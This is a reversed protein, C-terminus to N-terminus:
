CVMSFLKQNSPHSILAINIAMDGVETYESIIKKYNSVTFFHSNKAIAMATNPSETTHKAQRLLLIYETTFTLPRELKVTKGHPM